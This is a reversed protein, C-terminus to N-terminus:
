LGFDSIQGLLSSQSCLEQSSVQYYIFVINTHFNYCLANTLYKTDMWHTHQVQVWANLAGMLCSLLRNIQAESSDLQWFGYIVWAPMERNVARM